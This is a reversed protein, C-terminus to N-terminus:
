SYASNNQLGETFNYGASIQSWNTQSGVQKPSSYYTTNNFGLVGRSNMGWGWLTGDTKIAFSFDQGCAVTLWNTLSGVQKPSSYSTTNNLGLYGYGNQGWSWLTGDTKTAVTFSLFKSCAVNAWNILAGVQMPSSYTTQNLLGLQGYANYGWGYLSYYQYYKMWTGAGVAKSPQDLTWIGSYQKQYTLIPM